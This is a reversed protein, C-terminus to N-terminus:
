ERREQAILQGYVTPYILYCDSWDNPDNPTADIKSAEGFVEILDLRDMM